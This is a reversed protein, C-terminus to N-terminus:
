SQGKYADIWDEVVTPNENEFAELADIITGYSDVENDLGLDRLQGCTKTCAAYAAFALAIGINFM